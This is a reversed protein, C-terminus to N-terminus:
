FRLICQSCAPVLNSKKLWAPPGLIRFRVVCDWATLHVLNSHRFSIDIKPVWGPGTAFVGGATWMPLYPMDVRKWLHLTNMVSRILLAYSSVPIFEMKPFRFLTSALPSSRQQYRRVPSISVLSGKPSDRKSLGELCAIDTSCPM